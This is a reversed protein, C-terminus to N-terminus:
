AMPSFGSLQIIGLYSSPFIAPLNGNPLTPFPQITGASTPRGPSPSRSSVAKERSFEFGNHLRQLDGLVLIDARVDAALAVRKDDALPQFLECADQVLASLNVAERALRGTGPM